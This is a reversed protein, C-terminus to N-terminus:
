FYIGFKGFYISLMPISECFCLFSKNGRKFWSYKLHDNINKTGRRIKAGMEVVAKDHEALM